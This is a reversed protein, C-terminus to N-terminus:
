LADQELLNRSGPPGRRDHRLPGRDRLGLLPPHHRWLVPGVQPELAEPNKFIGELVRKLIQPASKGEFPLKSTVLWYIVTGLAFIDAREDVQEGEIMEPAMHAPSGLLSGTQTMTEADFIHAIGFDMLKIDGTKQAIM